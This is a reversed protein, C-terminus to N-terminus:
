VKKQSSELQPQLSPGPEIATVISPKIPAVQPIQTNLKLWEMALRRMEAVVKAEDDSAAVAGVPLYRKGTLIDALAGRIDNWQQEITGHAEPAYWSNRIHTKDFDYGLSVAMEHLLDILLDIQRTVWEATRDPQYSKDNLHDHYAKWAERVRKEKGRGGYFALEIGNLAQVHQQTLRSARTAMLTRFIADKAKKQDRHRELYKQAQVALIPGMVTAIVIAVASSDLHM